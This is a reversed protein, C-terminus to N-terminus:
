LPQTKGSGTCVPAPPRRPDWKRLGRQHGARGDGGGDAAAFGVGDDRVALQVSDEGYVIEVVVTSARAHKSVNSVAEHLIQLLHSRQEPRLPQEKGKVAFRVAFSNGVRLREVLMAAEAALDHGDMAMSLNYIYSRIEGIIRNLSQMVGAIKAQAAAPDVPVTYSADELALGAAYISQVIGDHLDRGIREREASLVQRREAALLFRDYEVDFIQLSRVVFYAVALGCVSRFVAAPVGLNETLLDYNLWAAPPLDLRPVVLGGVIAYAVFAVALGMAFFVQGYVSYVIFNNTEFLSAIAQVM